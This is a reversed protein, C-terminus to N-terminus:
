WNSASHTQLTPKNACLKSYGSPPAAGSSAHKHSLPAAHRAEGAPMYLPAAHVDACHLHGAYLPSQCGTCAPTETPCAGGSFMAWGSVPALGGVGRGGEVAFFSFFLPLTRTPNFSCLIHVCYTCPVHNTQSRWVPHSRM